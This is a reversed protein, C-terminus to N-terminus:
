EILNLMKVQQVVLALRKTVGAQKLGVVWSTMVEDGSGVKIHREMEPGHPHKDQDQTWRYTRYTPHTHTHRLFYKEM